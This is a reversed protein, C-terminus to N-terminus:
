FEHHVSPDVYDPGCGYGGTMTDGILFAEATNMAAKTGPSATLTGGGTNTVSRDKNGRDDQYPNDSM